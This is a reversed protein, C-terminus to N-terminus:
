ESLSRPTSEELSDDELTRGFAFRYAIAVIAGTSALFLVFALIGGFVPVTTIVYLALMGLLALKWTIQEKKLLGRGLAAGVLIGAYLYGLMLLLLYATALLMALAIGVFSVLLIFILVPVACVTAFGLLALLIFRGPTRTLTRNVVMQSFVPFLGALLSAAILVAIIRVVLLVSAGAIAFTQAEEVTPLYSSRGTYTVGGTVTATEPLAVEQPADYRLTGDIITGEEISLTDSAIVEVNGKFHGSLHVDAGYLVADGGSGSVRVTGGIIRTDLATSSATITGGALILDGSVPANVMIRGAAARVDGGVAEQITLTGGALSVDGAIPAVLSLTGGAAMLDEPLARAVSVDTGALYANGEILETVVLTRATLFTAASASLPLGALLVIALFIRM